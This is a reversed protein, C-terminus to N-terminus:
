KQPGGQLDHNYSDIGRNSVAAASMSNFSITSRPVNRVSTISVASM